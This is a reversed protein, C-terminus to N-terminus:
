ASWVFCLGCGGGLVLVVKEEERKDIEEMM